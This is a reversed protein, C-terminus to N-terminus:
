IPWYSRNRLSTSNLNGVQAYAGVAQLSDTHLLGSYKNGNTEFNVTVQICPFKSPVCAGAGKEKKKNKSGTGCFMCNIENKTYAINKIKCVSTEYSKGLAYERVIMVGCVVLICVCIVSITLLACNSARTKFDAPSVSVPTTLSSMTTVKFYEKNWPYFSLCSM